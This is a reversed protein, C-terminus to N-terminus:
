LGGSYNAYVWQTFTKAGSTTGTLFSIPIARVTLTGGTENFNALIDTSPTLVTGDLKKWTISLTAGADTEDEVIKFHFDHNPEGTFIFLIDETSAISYATSCVVFTGLQEAGSQPDYTVTIAKLVDAYFHGHADKQESCGNCAYSDIAFSLFIVILILIFRKM